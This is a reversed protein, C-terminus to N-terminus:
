DDSSDDSDSDSSDSDDSDDDACDNRYQAICAQVLDELEQQPVPATVWDPPSPEGDTKPLIDHDLKQVAACVKGKDLLKEVVDVKHALAKQHKPQDFDDPYLGQVFNGIAERCSIGVVSVTDELPNSVYAVARPLKQLAVDVPGSGVAVASLLLGITGGASATDVILLEDSASSPVFAVKGDLHVRIQTLSRGAGTDVTTRVSNYGSSDPDTDLIAIRSDSSYTVYAQKGDPTIAVATLSDRRGIRVPIQAISTNSTTEVVSVIGPSQHAIYVRLGDPTVDLGIPFGRITVSDVVTHFSGSDPDTDIVLLKRDGHHTVYARSGDPAVVVGIPGSRSGPPAIRITEAVTDTTLDIVEVRNLGTSFVDSAKSVAVYARSGDPTIAIQLPLGAGLPISNAVTSTGTDIVSVSAAALFGGEGVVSHGVYLRNGDPTLAIFTPLGSVPVKAIETLAQASVDGVAPGAWALGAVVLTQAATRVRATSCFTSPFRSVSGQLPSMVIEEVSLLVGWGSTM